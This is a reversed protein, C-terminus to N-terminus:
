PLFQLCVPAGVDVPTGAPALAGTAQDVSFVALTSSDQNAAILWRGGPDLTFFRPTRGRTSEIEVPVLTGAPEIRFVSISDHGRNSGYLFRGNPHIAIEATTSVGHFGPPLTTVSPGASLRGREGDWSLTTVTSAMESIVFARRRDPAFVLHRPGAGPTLHVSPPDNPTLRGTTQDFRYVLVQDIGLDVALLFRNQDDFVVQHAHPGDQRAKDPGVGPTVVTQIMAGLRGDTGVPFLAFTGSTYNAVALFRGTRDLALHCPNAGGSPQESLKTLAGTARDVAFSSVFGGSKGDPSGAENVTFLFRGDRSVTLFSPSRTEAMLGAPTLAGTREDFRFAYIGKSQSGTYSGVYVLRGASAVQPQAGAPGAALAVFTLARILISRM